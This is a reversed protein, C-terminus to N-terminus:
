NKLKQTVNKESVNDGFNCFPQPRYLMEKLVGLQEACVVTRDPEETLLVANKKFEADSARCKRVSM